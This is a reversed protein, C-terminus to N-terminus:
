NKATLLDVLTTGLATAIRRGTAMRINSVGSEIESILPRSVGSLAALREQTLNRDLRLRLVNAGFVQRMHVDILDHAADHRRVMGCRRMEGHASSLRM